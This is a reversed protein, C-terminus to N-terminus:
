GSLKILRGMQIAVWNGAKLQSNIVIPISMLRVKALGWESQSCLDKTYSATAPGGKQATAGPTTTGVRPANHDHSATIIINEVPIGIEREIQERLKITDGFEVLDAAVIAASNIGNDVVLARVFIQDHVGEFPRGWLNTLGTLDQPTIDIKAAGALLSGRNRSMM